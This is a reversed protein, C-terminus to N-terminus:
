RSITANAYERFSGILYMIDIRRDTHILELQVSKVVNLIQVKKLVQGAIEIKTLIPGFYVTSKM